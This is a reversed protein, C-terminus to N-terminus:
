GSAFMTKEPLKGAVWHQVIKGAARHFRLNGNDEPMPSILSVEGTAKLISLVGRNRGVVRRRPPNATDPEHVTAIFEYEAADESDAIKAIDICMIDVSHSSRVMANPADLTKM